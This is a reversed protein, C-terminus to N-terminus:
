LKFILRLIILLVSMIASGYMVFRADKHEFKGKNFWKQIYEIEYGIGLSAILTFLFTYVINDTLNLNIIPFLFGVFYGVIAHNQKDKDAKKFPFLAVKWIWALPTLFIEKM